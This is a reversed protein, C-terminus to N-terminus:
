IDVPAEIHAGDREREAQHIWPPLNSLDLLLPETHIIPFKNLFGISQVFYM